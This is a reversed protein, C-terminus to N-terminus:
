ANKLEIKEAIAAKGYDEVVFAENFSEFNQYADIEPNDRFQRRRKGEQEYISLNDLSTVMVAGAPFDPVRMAPLGGLRRSAMIVDAAIQETPDRQANVLPFYKDELLDRGVLAVLDTSERHWPDILENVLSTVLADITKFDGAAGYTLKAPNAGSDLVRQPANLRMRQMWGINVDQGMPNAVRDTTAAATLGNFGIRLRDRKQAGLIHNAIRTEFDDFRAWLDLKAYKLHTDFNTQFCFYADDDLNSPDITARKGAGSTDTRSAIVSGSIGLGLKEGQQEEVLVINFKSLITTDEMLKDILVQQVSPAVNFKRAAVAFPDAGTPLDNLDAVTELYASLRDITQNKM